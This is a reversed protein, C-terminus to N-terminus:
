VLNSPVVSITLTHSGYYTGMMSFDASVELTYEKNPDLDKFKAPNTGYAVFKDGEIEYTIWDASPSVSASAVLQDNEYKITLSMHMSKDSYSEGSYSAANQGGSNKVTASIGFSNDDLFTSSGSFDSGSQTLNGSGRHQVSADGVTADWTGKEIKSGRVLISMTCTDDYSSASPSYSASVYNIQPPSKKNNSRSTSGVYLIATAIVSVIM